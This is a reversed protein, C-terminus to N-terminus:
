RTKASEQLAALSTLPNPTSYLSIGSTGVMITSLFRAEIRLLASSTLFAAQVDSRCVYNPQRNKLESDFVSWQTDSARESVRVGSRM